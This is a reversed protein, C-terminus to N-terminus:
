GKIDVNEFRGLIANKYIHKVQHRSFQIINSIGCFDKMAKKSMSTIQKNSIKAQVDALKTPVKTRKLLNIIHKIVAHAKVHDSESDINLEMYNALKTIHRMAKKNRLEYDMVYPMLVANALGHPTNFVASMAHSLSHIFGLSACNFATGAIFEAYAM